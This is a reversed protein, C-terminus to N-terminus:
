SGSLVNGANDYTWQQQQNGNWTLMKIRGWADYVFSWAAAFPGPVAPTWPGKIQNGTARVQVSFVAGQTLGQTFSVSNGTAQLTAVVSDNMSLAALYGTVQQQTMALWVAGLTQGSLGLYLNAPSASVGVLATSWPGLVIGNASTARLTATYVPNASLDVNVNQNQGTGLPFSQSGAANSLQLLNGTIGPDTADTLTVSLVAADYDLENLSPANLIVTYPGAGPGVSVKDISAARVTCKWGTGTLSGPFVYQTAQVFVTQSDGQTYLSVAFYSYQSLPQWQALLQEVTYNVAAMEPVAQIISYTTSPPGILIGDLSQLSVNAQWGSGSLTGPFDYSTSQTSQVISTAPPQLLRALYKYGTVPLWVLSVDVGDYDVTELQPQILIPVYVPSVPGYSKGQPGIIGGTNAYIRVQFQWGMGTLPIDFVYSSGAVFQGNNYGPKSLQAYYTNYGTATNWGASLGNGTNEVLNATVSITIIPAPQSSFGSSDKVTVTWPGGQTLDRDIIASPGTAPYDFPQGAGNTLIVTFQTGTGMWNLSLQASDYMVQIIAPAEGAVKRPM